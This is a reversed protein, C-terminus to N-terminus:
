KVGYHLLAKAINQFSSNESIMQLKQHAKDRKDEKILLIASRVLALDRYIADQTAAYGDLASVDSATEYKALDSIIPTKSKSLTALTQMDNQAVAQAYIWLNYLNKSNAKLEELAQTNTADEQLLVLAENAATIREENNHTYVINAGVLVVVAVVSGIMWKKYKKVFRETMVAKEFFKEESSLENKVQDINEKLSM